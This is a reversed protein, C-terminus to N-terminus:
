LVKKLWIAMHRGEVRLSIEQVEFRNFEMRLEEESFFHHPLGRETGDLPVFTNPEIEQYAEDRHGRAAVTLFALGSDALIRWIEEITVRIEALLAHHIVQTSILGDFSNSEFPFHLRTDACVLDAPASEEKLWARTLRLGSPSIDLGTPKFGQKSLAVVHRGNGCGLDLIRVCGHDSFRRAVAEFGALPENFVRGDRKFISEWPHIEATMKSPDVQGLALM